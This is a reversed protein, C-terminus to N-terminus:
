SAERREANPLSRPKAPGNSPHGGSPKSGALPSPKADEGSRCKRVIHRITRLLVPVRERDIDLLQGLKRYSLRRPTEADPDADLTFSRLLKWLSWVIAKKDKPLENIWLAVCRLWEDLVRVGDEFFRPRVIPVLAKHDEDIEDVGFDSENAWVGELCRRVKLKLLDVLDKFRFAKVGAAKLDVVADALKEILKPVARGRAQIMEVLLADYLDGAGQDLNQCIDESRKHRDFGLVTDNRIRKNGSLIHIAGSEIVKLAAAKSHEFVRYGIPDAERQLGTLCYRINLVVLGDINPRVDLQRKLDKVRQMFVYIYVENVLMELADGDWRNENIGLYSPPQTSLGRRRLERKLDTRLQAVVEEFLAEDPPRGDDPLSSLYRTYIDSM